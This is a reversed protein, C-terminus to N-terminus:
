ELAEEVSMWVAMEEAMAALGEQSDVGKETLAEM